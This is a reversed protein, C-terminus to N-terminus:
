PLDSERVNLGVVDSAIVALKKNAITGPPIGSAYM